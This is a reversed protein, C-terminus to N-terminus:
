VTVLAALSDSSSAAVDSYAVPYPFPWQTAGEVSLEIVFRDAKDVDAKAFRESQCQYGIGVAKTMM